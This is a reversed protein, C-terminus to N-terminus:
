SRHFSFLLPEAIRLYDASDVIISRDLVGANFAIENYQTFLLPDAVLKLDPHFSFPPIAGFVCGTLTEVELPSALSARTGGLGAALQALDAQLDAGLVALVAQNIGNGKVRCVLAKAGQGLKTGRLMAVEACKGVPAHTVVRFRATAKDLLSILREYTPLPYPLTEM